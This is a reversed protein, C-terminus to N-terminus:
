IIRALNQIQSSEIDERKELLIKKAREEAEDLLVNLKIIKGKRTSM